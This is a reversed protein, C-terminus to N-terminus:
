LTIINTCDRDGAHNEIIHATINFWQARQNLIWADSSCVIDNCTALYKDPANELIADWNFNNAVAIEYCMTKMKGSNSVPKDFVWTIKGAGLANFLNGVSLLAQETQQVRKYTGHVSSIDRYCGDQGKFVYAGSFFSELVILINFGDLFIDKGSTDEKDVLKQGRTLVDSEACAMGQLAILQRTRLKYRGAPLALSSKMTYGRTLLYNLDQLAQKLKILENDNCFLANDEATKGRNRNTHDM